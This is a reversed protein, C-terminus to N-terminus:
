NPSIAIGIGTSSMTSTIWSTGKELRAEFIPLSAQFPLRGGTTRGDDYQWMGRSVRSEGNDDLERIGNKRDENRHGDLSRVSREAGVASRRSVDDDM